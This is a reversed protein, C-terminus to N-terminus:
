TNVHVCWCVCAYACECVCEGESDWQQVLTVFDDRIIHLACVCACVGACVCVRICVVGSNDSYLLTM